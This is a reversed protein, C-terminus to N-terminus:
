EEETPPLGLFARGEQTTIVGDTIAKGIVALETSWDDRTAERRKFRVQTGLPVWAQSWADEFDAMIPGTTQRNLGTWMQGPSKYQFSGASAGVWWGDINFLNAVDLLALKRAEVMQADTPSWALPKVETGAPLIVPRRTPGSFEQEWKDKAADAEKQSLDPNPTTVVVSPVGSGSLVRSEYAEQSKAKDLSDLHQEVVGIGLWPHLPHSSRRVHVVRSRDLLQGDYWYDPAQDTDNWASSLRQAPLWVVAAPYGTADYATTYQVANGNLLYDRVCEGVFWARGRNPDPQQLLRKVPLVRDGKVPELPCVRIQSEIVQVCKAVAPIGLARHVTMPVADLGPWVVQNWPQTAYGGSTGMLM